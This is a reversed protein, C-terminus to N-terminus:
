KTLSRAMIVLLFLIWSFVAHTWASNNFDDEKTNSSKESVFFPLSSVSITRSNEILRKGIKHSNLNGLCCPECDDKYCAQLSCHLYQPSDRANLWSFLPFRLVAVRKNNVNTGPTGSAAIVDARKLATADGDCYDTLIDYKPTATPDSDMNIWCHQFYNFWNVDDNVDINLSIDGVVQVLSGATLEEGTIELVGDVNTEVPDIVVVTEGVKIGAKKETESGSTVAVFKCGFTFELGGATRSIAVNATPQAATKLLYRIEVKNGGEVSKASYSCEGFKTFKGFNGSSDIACNQHKVGDKDVFFLEESTSVYSHLWTLNFQGEVQGLFCNLSRLANEGSVVTGLVLSDGLLSALVLGFILKM